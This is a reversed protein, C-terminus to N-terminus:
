MSLAVGPLKSSSRKPFCTTLRQSAIGEAVLADKVVLQRDKALSVLKQRLVEGTLKKSQWYNEDAANYYGCVKLSIAPQKDLLTAIKPLYDKKSSELDSLGPLFEVPELTIESAKDIAYQTAMLIAGYPQLTMALLAKSSSKLANMIAVNIVQATNFDPENLDGKIPVDLVINDDSDRLLNLALSLAGGSMVSGSDANADEETKLKPKSQSQTQTDAEDAELEFGVLKLNNKSDLVSEVIVINNTANLGGSQIRYGLDRKILPSFSHLNMDDVQVDLNLNVKDTFPKVKGSLSVRTYKDVTAKMSVPTFAHPKLNSLTGVSLQKIKINKRMAPQTAQTMLNVSSNPYINLAELEINFVEEVPQKKVVKQHKSLLKDQRAASKESDQTTDETADFRLLRLTEELQPLSKQKSFFLQLDLGYVDVKGVALSESGKSTLHSVNVQKTKLFPQKDTKRQAFAFEELLFDQISLIQLENLALHTSLQHFSSLKTSSTPDILATEGLTLDGSVQYTLSPNNEQNTEIPVKALTSGQWQQSALNMKRGKFLLIGETLSQKLDLDLSMLNDAMEVQGQNNFALIKLALSEQGFTALIKQLSVHNDLSLVLNDAQKDFGINGQWNLSNLDFIQQTEAEAHKVLNLQTLGLNGQYNGRLAQGKLMLDVKSKLVAKALALHIGDQQIALGSLKVQGQYDTKFTEENFDLQSTNEVNLSKVVFQDVGNRFSFGNLDWNGVLKLSKPQSPAQGEVQGSMNGIWNVQNAALKQEATEFILNSVSVGGYNTLVLKGEKHSAHLTMKSLVTGSLTKIETPLFNQYAELALGKLTIDGSVAQIKSFLFLDFDGKFQGSSKESNVQILFSLKAPKQAEWSYLDDIRFREFVVEKKFNPMSFQIKSENLQLAHIGLGWSFDSKEESVESTKESTPSLPIVFGGMSLSENPELIVAVNTEFVDLLEVELKKAFLAQWSFDFVLKGVKIPSLDKRFLKFEDVEVKAFFLSFHIDAVEVRTVGEQSLLADKLVQKLIPPTVLSFLSYIFIAVFLTKTIRSFSKWLTYLRSM